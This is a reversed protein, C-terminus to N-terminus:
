ETATHVDELLGPSLSLPGGPPISPNVVSEVQDFALLLGDGTLCSPSKRSAVLRSSDLEAPRGDEKSDRAPWDIRVDRRQLGDRYKVKKSVQLRREEITVLRRLSVPSLAVRVVAAERGDRLKVTVM